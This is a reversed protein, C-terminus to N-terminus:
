TCTHASCVAVLDRGGFVNYQLPVGPWVPHKSRTRGCTRIRGPAGLTKAALNSNNAGEEAGWHLWLAVETATGTDVLLMPRKVGVRRLRVKPRLVFVREVMPPM